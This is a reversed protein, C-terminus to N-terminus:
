VPRRDVASDLDRRSRLLWQEGDRVLTYVSVDLGQGLIENRISLMFAEVSAEEGAAELVDRYAAPVDPIPQDRGGRRFATVIDLRLNLRGLPGAEAVPLVEIVHYTAVTEGVPIEARIELPVEALNREQLTSGAERRPLGILLRLRDWRGPGGGEVRTAIRRPGEGPGVVVERTAPPPQNPGDPNVEAELPQGRLSAVQRAQPASITLADRQHATASQVLAQARGPDTGPAFAIKVAPPPSGIANRLVGAAAAITGTFQDRPPHGSRMVVTGVDNLTAVLISGPGEERALAAFNSEIRALEAMTPVPDASVARISPTTVARLPAKSGLAETAIRLPAAVDLAVAMRRQVESVSENRHREALRPLDRARALDDPNVRIELNGAVDARFTPTGSPVGASPVLRPMGSSLNHGGISTYLGSAGVDRSLVISPTRVHGTPPEFDAADVLSLVYPTGNLFPQLCSALDDARVFAVARRVAPDDPALHEAWTREQSSGAGANSAGLYLQVNSNFQDPIVNERSVMADLLLNRMDDGLSQTASLEDHVCEWSESIIFDFPISFSVDSLGGSIKSYFEPPKYHEARHLADQLHRRMRADLASSRMREPDTVDDTHVEFARFTQYLFTYQVVRTLHPNQRSSFYDWGIDELNSIIPPSQM